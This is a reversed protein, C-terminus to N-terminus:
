TYHSNLRYGSVHRRCACRHRDLNDGVDDARPTEDSLSPELLRERQESALAHLNVPLRELQVRFRRFRAHVPTSVPEPFESAGLIRLLEFGADRIGARLFADMKAEVADLPYRVREVCVAEDPQGPILAHLLGHDFVQKAGVEEIPLVDAARRDQFSNARVASEIGVVKLLKQVTM